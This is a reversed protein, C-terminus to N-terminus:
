LGDGYSVDAMRYKHNKTSLATRTYLLVEHTKFILERGISTVHVSEVRGYSASM